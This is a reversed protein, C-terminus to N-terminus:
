HKVVGLTTDLALNLDLVNVRARGLFGWAPPTTYQTILARVRDLPVGRAEAVRPAQILAAAPPVDPDLGGGSTTVMESPIHNATVHEQAEIGDMRDHVAKLHDPNSPGYNSGGTSAANYDVASPRPQFYEPRAFKQAILHSGVVTGDARRILSGEAQGAFAVRGVGWILLHYAIVVAIMTVTFIVGRKLETLM